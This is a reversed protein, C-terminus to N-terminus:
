QSLWAVAVAVCHKCFDGESGAPCDCVYGLRKGKSWISVDYLGTGRVKGRLCGAERALSIVRGDKAYARGRALTEGRALKEIM